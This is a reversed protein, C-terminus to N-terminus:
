SLIIILKTGFIGDECGRLILQKDATSYVLFM